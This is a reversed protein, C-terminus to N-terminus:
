EERRSPESVRGVRHAREFIEDDSRTRRAGLYDLLKNDRGSYPIQPLPPDSISLTKRSRGQSIGM